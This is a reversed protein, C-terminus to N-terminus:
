TTSEEYQTVLETQSGMIPKRKLMKFKQHQADRLEQEQALQIQGQGKDCRQRLEQLTIEPQTVVELLFTELQRLLRMTKRPNLQPHNHNAKLVLENGPGVVISLAYNERGLYRVDSIELTPRRQDSADGLWFNEFVLFSEFL